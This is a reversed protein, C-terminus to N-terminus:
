AHQLEVQVVDTRGVTFSAICYTLYFRWLRTFATDFGLSKVETIKAEFSRLWHQLTHAYDTGFSHSDTLRLGAKNAEQAFRTPSPLMGGPFIYTRIMDGSRRYTEFYEDKITITQIVAKGKQALLEQLKGFYTPWYKEGVAEFMEISVINNYKGQQLRYDEIAINAKEGVRQHAYQHQAKSLTLGKIEYDNKHLAREAFGGWGCGIELLKGSTGLRSLIRDYKNHQALALPQDPSDFLAASYTMTEDLWLKYFENGLDYHAHINKKSGSLTNQKLLYSLRAAIRGIVSGYIYNSFANENQLGVIFLKALDDSDWWGDRYSEAFGIDGKAAFAEIVRWDHLHMTATEGKEKGVYHYRKGDPTTVDIEGFEINELAKLFQKTVTKEIM